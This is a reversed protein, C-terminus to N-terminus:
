SRAVIAEASVWRGGERVVRHYLTPHFFCPFDDTVTVCAHRALGEALGRGEGRRREVYSLYRVPFPGADRANDIMGDLIFRHLRESAWPYGVRLADLIVLPKGLRNSWEVARQLAFNSHLRRYATMWYLVFAGDGALVADNASRIRLLPTESL